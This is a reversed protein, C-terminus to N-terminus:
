KSARLALVLEDAARSNRGLKLIDKYGLELKASGGELTFRAGQPDSDGNLVYARADARVAAHLLMLVGIGYVDRQERAGKGDFILHRSSEPASLSTGTGIWLEEGLGENPHPHLPRTSVWFCLPDRDSGSKPLQYGAHDFHAQVELSMSFLRDTVLRELNEVSLTRRGVRVEFNLDILELANDYGGVIAVGVERRRSIEDILKLAEQVRSASKSDSATFLYERGAVRFRVKKSFWDREVKGEIHSSRPAEPEAPAVPEPAPAPASAVADSTVDVEVTAVPKTKAPFVLTDGFDGFQEKALRRVIEERGRENHRFKGDAVTDLIRQAKEFGKALVTERIKWADEEPVENSYKPSGMALDFIEDTVPGQTKEGLLERTMAARFARFADTRELM